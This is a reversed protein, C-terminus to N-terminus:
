DKGCGSVLKGVLKNCMIFVLLCVMLKCTIELYKIKSVSDKFTTLVMLPM